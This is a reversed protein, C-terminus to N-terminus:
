IIIEQLKKLFTINISGYVMSRSIITSFHGVVCWLFAWSLSGACSWRSTASGTRTASRRSSRRRRSGPGTCRPTQLPPSAKPNALRVAVFRSLIVIKCAQYTIGHARCYDATPKDFEGASMRCQNVAPTITTAPDDALLRLMNADFNSVGIAKIKDPMERMAQEMALWISATEKSANYPYPAIYDCPEHMLLLDISGVDGLAELDAQIYDKAMQPTYHGSAPFCVGHCKALCPPWQGPPAAGPCGCCGGHLSGPIKTTVFLASRPLGSERIAAAIARQTRYEWASDFGRGGLQLWLSYNGSDPYDVDVTTNVGGMTIMPLHVGPAVEVSPMPAADDACYRVIQAHTCGAARLEHQLKGACIDCPEHAFPSHARVRDTSCSARLTALCSGGSGSGSSSSGSGSGPLVSGSGSRSLLLLLTHRWGVM